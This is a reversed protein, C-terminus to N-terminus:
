YHQLEHKVFLMIFFAENEAKHKAYLDCSKDLCRYVAVSYAHIYIKHIIPVSGHYAFM